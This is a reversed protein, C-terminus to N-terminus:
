RVLSDADHFRSSARRDIVILNPELETMKDQVSEPQYNRILVHRSGGGGSGYRDGLKRAAWSWAESQADERDFM